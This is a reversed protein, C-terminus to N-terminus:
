ILLALALGLVAGIAEAIVAALAAGAVGMEFGIVFLAILAANVLNIVVQLTLATKARALGVFWGLLVYNALALPASWIRIAFYAVAAGTVEPSAGMVWSTLALLPTKLAVLGIGIVVALLLARVLTAHEETVDAAGLAQATLAVTGMRLFGFRWFRCDFVVSSMAVAGLMHAQGLRGIAATAVVGLLPTPANSLTMPIAIALVRKNTVAFPRPPQNM